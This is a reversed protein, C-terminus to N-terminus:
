PHNPNNLVEWSFSLQDYHRVITNFIPEPPEGGIHFYYTLANPKQIIQVGLADSSARWNDKRLRELHLQSCSNTPLPIFSHFCFDSYILTGTLSPDFGQANVKFKMLHCNDGRAVFKLFQLKPLM